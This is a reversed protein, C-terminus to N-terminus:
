PTQSTRRNDLVGEVANLLPERLLPKSMVASAGFASAPRLLSQTDMRGGSSVALIPLTVGAARLELIVELGDKEPMLMDLILLDPSKSRVADLAVVGNEADFVEHGATRLYEGVSLRFIPDDDALVIRAM